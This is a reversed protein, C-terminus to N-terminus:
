TLVIFICTLVLNTGLSRESDRKKATELLDETERKEKKIVFFWKITISPDLEYYKRKFNEVGHVHM